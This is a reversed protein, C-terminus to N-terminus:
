NNSIINILKNHNKKTFYDYAKDSDKLSILKEQKERDYINDNTLPPIATKSMVGIGNDNNIISYYWQPNNYALEVFCLYTLGCWYGKQFEKGSYEKKPPYCDHSILIGEDSLYSSLIQFDMSSEKYGHYPDIAVIDFKINLDKLYDDINDHALETYLSSKSSLGEVVNYMIRVVNVSSEDRIMDDMWPATTPTRVLLINRFPKLDQLDNFLKKFIDGNAVQHDTYKKLEM